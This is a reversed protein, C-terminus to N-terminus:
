CRQWGVENPAHATHNTIKPPHLVYWAVLQHPPKNLLESGPGIVVARTAERAAIPREAEVADFSQAILVVDLGVSAVDAMAFMPLIALLMIALSRSKWM